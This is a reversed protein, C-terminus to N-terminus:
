RRARPNLGGARSPNAHPNVYKSNVGVAPPLDIITKAEDVQVRPERELVVRLDPDDELAAVRESRSLNAVQDQPPAPSRRNAMVVGQESANVPVPAHIATRNLPVRPAPPEQADVLQQPARPPEPPPPAAVEEQAAVPAEPEERSWTRSRAELDAMESPTVGGGNKLGEEKLIAERLEEPLEEGAEKLEGIIRRYREEDTEEEVRFQVGNFARDQAGKIADLVKRFAVAVMEKSWTSVLHDRVWQHRELRVPQEGPSEVEIFRADRLSTEDVQVLSRCVHEIQYCIPYSTEPVEELEELIANSDNASLSRFVLNLEAIRVAEEVHGANRAKDLVAQLRSAKVTNM